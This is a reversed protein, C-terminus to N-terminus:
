DEFRNGGSAEAKDMLPNKAQNQEYQEYAYKWLRESIYNKLTKVYTTSRYYQKTSEVLITYDKVEKVIRVLQKAIEKSYQRVTYSQGNVIVRHPIQADKIFKDWVEEEERVDLNDLKNEKVLNDQEPLKLERRLKGTIVIKGNVMTLYGNALLYDVAAKLDIM